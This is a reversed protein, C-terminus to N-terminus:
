KYGLFLSLFHNISQYELILILAVMRVLVCTLTTTKPQYSTDLGESLTAPETGSSAEVSVHKAAAVLSIEIEESEWSDSLLWQQVHAEVWLAYLKDLVEGPDGM